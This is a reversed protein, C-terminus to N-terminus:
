EDWMGIYGLSEASGWTGSKECVPMEPDRHIGFLMALFFGLWHRKYPFIAFVWLWLILGESM